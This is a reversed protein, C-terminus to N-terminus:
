GSTHTSQNLLQTFHAMFEKDSKFDTPGSAEAANRQSVTKPVRNPEKSRPSSGSRRADGQPTEVKAPRDGFIASLAEWKHRLLDLPTKGGLWRSPTEVLETIDPEEGTARYHENAVQYLLDIIEPDGAMKELEGGAEKMTDAMGSKYTSIQQSKASSQRESEARQKEQEREAAIRQTQEELEKIRKYEPSASRRTYDNVLERWDKFGATKALGDVDGDALAKEFAQFKVSSGQTKSGEEQMRAQFAAQERQLQERAKRKEERFAVREAPEIRNGNVKFGHKEALAELERINKDAAAPEPKSQRKAQPTKEELEDREAERHETVSVAGAGEGPVPKGESKLQAELAAAGREAAAWITDGNTAGGGPMGSVDAAELDAM